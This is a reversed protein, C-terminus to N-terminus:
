LAQRLPDANFSPNPRAPRICPRGDCSTASRWQVSNPERPDKPLDANFFITSGGPLQWGHLRVGARPESQTVLPLGLSKRLERRASMYSWWPVGTAVHVLGVEGFLFNAYMTPVGNWTRLYATCSRVAGPIGTHDRGCRLPIPDALKRLDAETFSQSLRNWPLELDKREETLYLRYETLIPDKSRWLWVATGTMVLVLLIWLPSLPRKRPQEGPSLKM